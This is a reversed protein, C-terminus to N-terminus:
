EILEDVKLDKDGILLVLYTYPKTNTNMHINAYVLHATYGNIM